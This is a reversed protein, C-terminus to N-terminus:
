PRTDETNTATPDPEAGAEGADTDEPGQEGKEDDGLARMVRCIPDTCAADALRCPTCPPEGDPVRHMGHLTPIQRQEGSVPDTCFILPQSRL